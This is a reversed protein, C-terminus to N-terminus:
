SSRPMLSCRLLRVRCRVGLEADAAESETLGFTLSENCANVANFDNCQMVNYMSSCTQRQKKLSIAEHEMHQKHM